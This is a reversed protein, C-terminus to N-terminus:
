LTDPLGGRRSIAWRKWKDDGKVDLCLVAGRNDVLYVRNGEVTAESSMGM